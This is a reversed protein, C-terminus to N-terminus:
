DQSVQLEQLTSMKCPPPTWAPHEECVVELAACVQMHMRQQVFLADPGQSDEERPVFIIERLNPLHVAVQRLLEMTLNAATTSRYQDDIWFLSDSIALRQITALEAPDCMTMCTRFQAGAAMFGLRPGFFLIDLHPNVIVRGRTRAFGFYKRYHKATESRSESCAHLISPISATSTCGSSNYAHSPLDLSSKIKRTDLSSLRDNGCHISVVRPGPQAM